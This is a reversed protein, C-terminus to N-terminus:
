LGRTYAVGMSLYANLAYARDGCMSKEGFVSIEAIWWFLNEGFNGAMRYYVKHFPLLPLHVWCVSFRFSFHVFYLSYVGFCHASIPLYAAYFLGVLATLLEKM